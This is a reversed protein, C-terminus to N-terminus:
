VGGPGTVPAPGLGALSPANRHPGVQLQEAKQHSLAIHPHQQRLNPHDLPAFLAYM